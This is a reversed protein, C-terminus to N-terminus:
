CLVFAIPHAYFQVQHASYHAAASVDERETQKAVSPQKFCLFAFPWDLCLQLRLVHLRFLSLRIQENVSRSLLSIKGIIENYSYNGVIHRFLIINEGSIFTQPLICNYLEQIQIILHM